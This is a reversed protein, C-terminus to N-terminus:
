PNFVAGIRVCALYLAACHWWNPLQVAVVDGREVGHAALAAALRVSQRRLAGYSMRTSRGTMSNHDVIALADPDAAAAEDVADIFLRNPWLGSETLQAIRADPLVPLFDM